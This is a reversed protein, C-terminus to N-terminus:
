RHEKRATVPEVSLGRHRFGTEAKVTVKVVPFIEPWDQAMRKWEPYHQRKVEEGFGFVDAHLSQAKRVTHMIEREISTNVRRELSEYYQPTLLGPHTGFHEWLDCTTRVKVEFSPLGNKELHVIIRSKSRVLGMVVPEVPGEVPCPVIIERTKIKNLVWMLGLTEKEDFFDVLKGGPSFVAVRSVKIAQPVAGLSKRDEASISTQPVVEVVPAVPSTTGTSLNYAFEGFDVPMIAQRGGELDFLNSIALGTARFTPMEVELVRKAEGRAIALYMSRRTERNRLPRDLLPTIGLRAAREGVLTLRDQGFFIPKPIREVISLSAAGVTRGTGAVTWFAKPAGPGGGGGGGGGGQGPVLAIPNAIQLTLRVQENGAEHVVDAATAVVMALDNIERQDWCGGTVLLLPLLLTVVVKRM